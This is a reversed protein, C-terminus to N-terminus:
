LTRFEQSSTRGLDRGYRSYVEGLGAQAGKPDYSSSIRSRPPGSPARAQPEAQSDWITTLRRVEVNLLETPSGSFDGALTRVQSPKWHQSGRTQRYARGVGSTM